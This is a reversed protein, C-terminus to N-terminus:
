FASGSSAACLPKWPTCPDLGRRSAQELGDQATSEERRVVKVQSGAELAGAPFLRHLLM